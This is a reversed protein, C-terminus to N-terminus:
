KILFIKKKSLRCRKKKENSDPKIHSLLNYVYAAYMIDVISVLLVSFNSMKAATTVTDAM